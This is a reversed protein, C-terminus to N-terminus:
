EQIYSVNLHLSERNLFEFYVAFEFSYLTTDYRNDTGSYILTWEDDIPTYINYLSGGAIKNWRIFSGNGDVRTPSVVGQLTSTTLNVSIIGEDPDIIESGYYDIEGSGNEGLVVFTVEINAPVYITENLKKTTDITVQELVAGDNIAAVHLYVSSGTNTIYLKIESEDQEFCGTLNLIFLTSIILYIFKM